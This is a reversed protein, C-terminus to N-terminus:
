EDFCLFALLSDKVRTKLDTEFISANYQHDSLTAYIWMQVFTVKELKVFETYSKVCNVSIPM